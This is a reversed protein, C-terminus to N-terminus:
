GGAKLRDIVKRDRDDASELRIRDGIVHLKVQPMETAIGVKGSQDIHVAENGNTAIVLPNDDTTGLFNMKKREQM